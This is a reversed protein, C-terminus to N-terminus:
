ITGNSKNRANLCRKYFFSNSKRLTEVNYLAALKNTAALSYRSLDM